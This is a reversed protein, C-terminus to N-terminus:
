EDEDDDDWPGWHGTTVINHRVDIVDYRTVHDEDIKGVAYYAPRPWTVDLGNSKDIVTTGDETEVWAHFFRKGGNVPGRGIPYGHVLLLGADVEQDLVITAAVQACDGRKTAM